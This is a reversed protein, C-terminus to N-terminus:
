IRPKFIRTEVIPKPPIPAGTEELWRTLPNGRHALPLPIRAGDCRHSEYIGMIMELVSRAVRGSSRPERNSEIADLLDEIMAQMQQGYPFPEPTPTVEIRDPHLNPNLPGRHLFLEATSGSLVLMGETGILEISTKWTTSGAVATTGPVGQFL